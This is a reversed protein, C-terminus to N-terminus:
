YCDELRDNITVSIIGTATVIMLIYFGVFCYYLKHFHGFLVVELKFFLMTSYVSSNFTLLFTRYWKLMRQFTKVM